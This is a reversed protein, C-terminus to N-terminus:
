RKRLFKISNLFSPLEVARSREVVDPRTTAEPIDHKLFQNLFKFTVDNYAEPEVISKESEPKKFSQRKRQGKEKEQAPKRSLGASIAKEREKAGKKKGQEYLRKIEDELCHEKARKFIKTYEDEVWGIESHRHYGVEYGLKHAAKMLMRETKDWDKKEKKAKPKRFLFLM